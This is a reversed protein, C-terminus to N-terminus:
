CNSDFMVFLFCCLVILFYCNYSVVRSKVRHFYFSFNFSFTGWWFKKGNEEGWGFFLIAHGSDLSEGEKIDWVGKGDFNMFSDTTAFSVAIAGGEQIAKMMVLESQSDGRVTVPSHFIKNPVCGEVKHKEDFTGDEERLCTGRAGNGLESFQVAKEDIDVSKGNQKFERNESACKCIAMDLGGTTSGAPGSLEVSVETNTKCTVTMVDKDKKYALCHPEGSDTSDEIEEMNTTYSSHAECFRMNDVTVSQGPEIEQNLTMKIYEGEPSLIQLTYAKNSEQRLLSLVTADDSDEEEALRKLETYQSSTPVMEKSDLVKKLENLFNVYDTSFPVLLEAEPGIATKGNNTLICKKDAGAGKDFHTLPDGGHAYKQCHPDVLGYKTAYEFVNGAWHGDQPTYSILNFVFFYFDSCAVVVNM